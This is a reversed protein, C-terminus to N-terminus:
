KCGLPSHRRSLTSKKYIDFTDFTAACRRPGRGCGLPPELSTKRATPHTPHSRRRRVAVRTLPICLLARLRALAAPRPASM